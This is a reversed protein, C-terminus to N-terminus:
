TGCFLLKFVLKIIHGIGPGDLAVAPEPFGNDRPGIVVEPENRIRRSRSALPMSLSSVNPPAFVSWGVLPRLSCQLSGYRHRPSKGPRFNIKHMNTTLFVVDPVGMETNKLVPPAGWRSFKGGREVPRHGVALDVPSFNTLTIDM